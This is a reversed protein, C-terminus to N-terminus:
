TLTVPIAAGILEFARRQTPTAITLTPIVPDTDHDGYRLDNRTLTALHTLLGRFSHYPQDHEDHQRSAKRAATTSRQAPAVPNTRQPPHQDTYTLPALARRLHWVLYEALMCILVHAKVRDELRHHIPRLALDDVKINRWDREIHSLDKYATVVGATDLTGAPVSTRIVYIGDLAAEADIAAQDRTITLTTDTIIVQFHKAM